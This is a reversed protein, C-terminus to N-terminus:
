NKEKIYQKYPICNQSANNSLLKFLGELHFVIKEPPTLKAPTTWWIPHTLLHITFNKKDNNKEVIDKPNDFRWTGQSDSCYKINKIFKKMYTHALGGIVKADMSVIKKNPRHFSIIKIKKKSIKELYKKETLLAKKLDKPSDYLAADFHLGIDHGLSAIELLACKTNYHNLNYFSTNLLFFYSSRVNLKKEERALRLARFPCFDIDHRLILNKGKNLNEHFLKFKFNNKKFFIILKKYEAIGFRYKLKDM